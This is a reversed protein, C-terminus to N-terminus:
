ADKCRMPVSVSPPYKWMAGSVADVIVGIGGGLLINGANKANYTSEVATNGKAGDNSKCSVMLASSSKSITATGPAMVHVVGDKNKMECHVASRDKDCGVANVSVSDTSGDILTACGTISALTGMFALKLLIKM